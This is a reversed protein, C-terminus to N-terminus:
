QIRFDLEHTELWVGHGFLNRIFRASDSLVLICCIRNEKGHLNWFQARDPMDLRISAMEEGLGGLGYSVPV